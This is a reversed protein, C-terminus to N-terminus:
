LQDSGSTENFNYYILVSEVRRM